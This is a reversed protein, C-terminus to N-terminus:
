HESVVRREHAPRTVSSFAVLMILPTLYQRHRDYFQFWIGVCVLQAISALVLVLLLRGGPTRKWDLLAKMAHLLLVSFWIQCLLMWFVIMGPKPAPYFWQLRQAPSIELLMARAGRILVNELYDLPHDFIWTTAQHWTAAGMQVDTMSSTAYNLQLVEPPVLRTFALGGITTFPVFEGFVLYNRLWWPSLVLVASVAVIALAQASDRLPMRTVAVTGAFLFPGVLALGPQALALLGWM